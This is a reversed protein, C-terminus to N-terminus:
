LLTALVGLMKEWAQRSRDIFDAWEPPLEHM